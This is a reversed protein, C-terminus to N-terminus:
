DSENQLRQRKDGTARSVQMQEADRANPEIAQRLPLGLGSPRGDM